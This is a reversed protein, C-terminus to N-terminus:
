INRLNAERSKSWFKDFKELISSNLRQLYVNQLNSDHSILFSFIAKSKVINLLDKM